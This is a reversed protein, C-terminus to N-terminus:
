EHHGETKCHSKAGCRYCRGRMAKQYDILSRGTTTADVDMANPDRAPSAFPTPNFPNPPPPLGGSNTVIPRGREQARQIQRNDIKICEDILDSLAATDRLSLVLGDKIRDALHDYFRDRLDKDSYGTRSAYQKFASAYTAVTGKGQWLRRIAVKADIVADVTEFQGKFADKFSQWDPYAM